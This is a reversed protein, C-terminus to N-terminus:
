KRNSVNMKHILHEIMKGAIDEGSVKEIMELGPSANVELVLLGQEARLLDVGAVDLGLAQTARVALQQEETSLSIPQATGGQHINARFDDGKAVREMSAVVQDGIVFARIDQGKAESVFRQLLTATQTQRLTDLMAVATSPNEALMVGVGQSGTLTKIVTPSPFHAVSHSTSVLEGYLLTEPVAIGQAVIRQLSQWKDRALQFAGSSNLVTAGQQELHRLVNCGMATSSTGFRPLVASYSAIKQPAPRMKDYPEGQQYYLSFAPPELVLSFRNPDLIDLEGGRQAVAQKLRQCSYLRPERCLMLMKM